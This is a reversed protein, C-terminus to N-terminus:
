SNKKSRAQLLFSPVLFGPIFLGAYVLTRAPFPVLSLVVAGLWWFLGLGRLLPWDFLGSMVFFLVGSVTAVLIVISEYSYVRLAPFLLGVLLFATGCGFYLHRAATQVYTRVAEKKRRRIGYVISYIWGIVAAAVWNLWEWDYLRLSALVYNGVLALTLLVGWVVFLTGSEATSRKTQDIMRRILQIEERAQREDM